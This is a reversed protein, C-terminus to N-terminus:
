DTSGRGAGNAKDGTAALWAAIGDLVITLKKEFWITPDDRIVDLMLAAIRPEMAGSDALLRAREPIGQRFADASAAGDMVMDFVSDVALLVAESDLGQALLYRQTEGGRRWLAEAAGPTSRVIAILGPYRQYMFWHARAESSLAERWGGSLDVPPAQEVLETVAAAVIADRGSFHRYLAAHTADLRKALATMTFEQFGLELAAEVIARKSLRPKPGPRRRGRERREPESRSTTM